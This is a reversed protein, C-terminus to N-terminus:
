RKVEPFRIHREGADDTIVVILSQLRQWTFLDMWVRSQRGDEIYTVCAARELSSVNRAAASATPDKM